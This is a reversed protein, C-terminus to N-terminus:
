TQTHTHTRNNWIFWITYTKSELWFITLGPKKKVWNLNVSTQKWVNDPKQFETNETGAVYKQLQNNNYVILTYPM